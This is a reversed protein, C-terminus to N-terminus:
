VITRAAIIAQFVETDCAVKPALHAVPVETLFAPILNQDLGIVRRICTAIAARVNGVPTVVFWIVVGDTVIIVVSPSRDTQKRIVHPSSLRLNFEKINRHVHCRGIMSNRKSHEYKLAQSHKLQSLPQLVGSSPREQSGTSPLLLAADEEKTCNWARKKRYGM